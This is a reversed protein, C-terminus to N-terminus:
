PRREKGDCVRSVHGFMYGASHNGGKLTSPMGAQGNHTRNIRHTSAQFLVKRWALDRRVNSKSRGTSRKLSCACAGSRRYKGHPCAIPKTMIAVPSVGSISRVPKTQLRSRYFSMEELPARMLIDINTPIKPLLHKKALERKLRAFEKGNYVRNKVESLIEDYFAKTM